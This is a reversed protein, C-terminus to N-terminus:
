SSAGTKINRPKQGLGDSHRTNRPFAITSSATKARIGGPTELWDAIFQLETQECALRVAQCQGYTRQHQWWRKQDDSLDGRSMQHRRHWELYMFTTLALDAWGEVPELTQFQYQHFGLTSKLEKFFLETASPILERPVIGNRADSV